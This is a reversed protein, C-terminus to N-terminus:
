AYFRSMTEPCCPEIVVVQNDYDISVKFRRLYDSGLVGDVNMTKMLSFNAVAIDVDELRGSGVTLETLRRVTAAVNGGASFLTYPRGKALGLSDAVAVSLVTNSAGTDLLFRYPGHGNISVPVVVLATNDVFDFAVKREGSAGTLQSHLFDQVALLAERSKAIIRIRAGRETTEYRYRIEKQHEQMAPTAAPIGSRAEKLLRQRVQDRTQKDGPHTAEMEIIGGEKDLRIHSVSLDRAAARVSDMTCLFLLGAVLGDRVKM